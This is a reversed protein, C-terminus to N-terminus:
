KPRSCRALAAGAEEAGVKSAALVDDVFQPLAEPM